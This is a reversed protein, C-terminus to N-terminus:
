KKYMNIFSKVATQPCFPWILTCKYKVAVTKPHIRLTMNKIICWYNQGVDHKYFVQRDVNQSPSQDKGNEGTKYAIAMM